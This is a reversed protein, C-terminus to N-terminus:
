FQVNLGTTVSTERFDRTGTTYSFDNLGARLFLMGYNLKALFDPRYYLSLNAFSRLSDDTGAAEKELKSMGIRFDSTIKHDPIDLGLGISYEYIVDRTDALEDSATWGGLYLSPKLIVKDLTHRSSLMTNYTYQRSDIVRTKTDYLTYGINTDSDFIGFRDRYNFNTIHNNTSSTGGDKRDFRYTLGATSYQRDFVRRVSVGIEPKYNHTTFPRQDELNDRFWLFGSNVTLTKSYRYRWRAKAKERDPTASGLLAQFDPDIREYELNVRSPGGDGVAEFKHAHGHRTKYDINEGESVKTTNFASETKLTLGPIPRYELDLSYVMSNYLSDTSRIRKGDDLGVVNVGAFFEPTFNYKIRGGIAQREITKTEHDRWVHDWRPYVLGTVITVDPTNASEDYFRYSVGKLSTSLSYQSFSEFTDGLNLTNIKDSARFQFNTLSLQKVDNRLDDTAKGGINFSYDFGQVQGYGSVGLVNMYRLGETLSSSAKGPGSVENHTLSFENSIHLNDQAFLTSVSCSLVLIVFLTRQLFKRDM